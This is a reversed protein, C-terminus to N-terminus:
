AAQFVSWFDLDATKAVAAANRLSALFAMEEGGPFTAAAMQAGTVYSTQEVNNVFWRIRKSTHALPNYILGVNYDTAAALATGYTGITQITQGAKKYGFCLADGDSELIWFGLRDKDAVAGANTFGGNQAACGEESLGVFFNYNNGVQGLSFKAEFILMREYGATLNINCLNGSGGGSQLTAEYNDTASLALQIRDRETALQKISCAATTTDVYYGYGQHATGATTGGASPAIQGFNGFDDGYFFGGGGDPSVNVENLASWLAPSLKKGRQGEHAVVISPSYFM